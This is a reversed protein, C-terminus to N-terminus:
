MGVFWGVRSNAIRTSLSLKLVIICKSKRVMPEIEECMRKRKNSEGHVVVFGVVVAVFDDENRGCLDVIAIEVLLETIGNTDIADMAPSLGDEVDIGKILQSINSDPRVVVTETAGRPHAGASLTGRRLSVNRIVGHSTYLAGCQSM